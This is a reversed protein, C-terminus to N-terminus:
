RRRAVSAVVALAVVALAIGPAPLFARREEPTEYELGSVLVFRASQDILPLHWRFEHSLNGNAETPPDLSAEFARERGDLLAEGGWTFFARRGADDAYFGVTANTARDLAVSAAPSTVVRGEIAFLHGVQRAPLDRVDLYVILDQPLVRAGEDTFPREAAAVELTVNPGGAATSVGQWFVDLGRQGGVTVSRVDSVNWAQQAFRWSRSSRETAPQYKGDQNQDRYEVVRTLQWEFRASEDRSSMDPRHEAVLSLGNPDVVHRVHQRLPEGAQMLEFRAVDGEITVNATRRGMVTQIAPREHDIHAVVTPLSLLAVVLLAVIRRDM